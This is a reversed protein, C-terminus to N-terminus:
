VSRNFDEGAYCSALENLIDVQKEATAGSFQNKLSDIKQKGPDFNEPQSVLLSPFLLLIFLSFYRHMKLKNNVM